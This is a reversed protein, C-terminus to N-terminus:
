HASMERCFTRCFARVSSLLRLQLELTCASRTRERFRQLGKPWWAQSKTPSTGLRACSVDETERRSTEWEIMDNRIYSVTVFFYIHPM